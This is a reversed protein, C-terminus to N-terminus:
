DTIQLSIASQHDRSYPEALRLILKNLITQTLSNYSTM